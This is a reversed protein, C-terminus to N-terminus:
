STKASLRRLGHQIMNRHARRLRESLAQQSVGLKQSLTEMTIRRPVDFYGNEFAVVLAESQAATLGFQGIRGETLEYISQISIEIGADKWQEALPAIQEHKPFLLQLRWAGETSYASQLIAKEDVLLEVLREIDEIWEMQYLWEDEFEAVLEVGTVNPDGRLEKEVSGRNVNSIWLLPIVGDRNCAVLQEIEFRAEPVAACTQSLVFEDIPIDLEVITGM